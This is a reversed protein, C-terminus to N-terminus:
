VLGQIFAEVYGATDAAVAQLAIVPSIASAYIGTDDTAVMVGMLAGALMDTAITAGPVLKQNLVVALNTTGGVLVAPCHGGVQIFGYQSVTITGIAIGM